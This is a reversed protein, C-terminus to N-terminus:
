RYGSEYMVGAGFVYLNVHGFSQTELRLGAKIGIEWVHARPSEGGPEIYWRGRLIEGEGAFGVPWAYAIATDYSPELSGRYLLGPATGLKITWVGGGVKWSQRYGADFSRSDAKTDIVAAVQFRSGQNPFFPDDETNWGYSILVFADNLGSYGVISGDRREIQEERKANPYRRYGFTLYSFDFLRRGVTLDVGFIEHEYRDASTDDEFRVRDYFAGGILFYNRSNFLRPDVYQMRASYAEGSYGSLPMRGGGQLSFIKGSGFLNDNSIRGAVRTYYDDERGAAVLVSETTWHDTETVEIVIRARGRELGKELHISVERLHPMASLRLKANAIEEEDIRDNAGLYLRDRLLDCPTTANGRCEISEVTLHEEVSQGVSVSPAFAGLLWFLSSKMLERTQLVAITILAAGSRCAFANLMPQKNDYRV